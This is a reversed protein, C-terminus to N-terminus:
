AGKVLLVPAVRAASPVTSLAMTMFPTAVVTNMAPTRRTSNRTTKMGDRESACASARSTTMSGIIMTLPSHAYIDAFILWSPYTHSSLLTLDNGGALALTFRSWVGHSEMFLFHSCPSFALAIHDKLSSKGYQKRPQVATDQDFSTIHHPLHPPQLTNLSFPQTTIILFLKQDLYLFTYPLLIFFPYYLHPPYSDRRKSCTYLNSRFRM